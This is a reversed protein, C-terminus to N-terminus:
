VAVNPVQIKPVGAARRQTGRSAVAFCAPRLANPTSKFAACEAEALQTDREELLAALSHPVFPMVLVLNAGHTHVGLLPVVHPHQLRKLVEVEQMTAKQEHRPMNAMSVEKRIFQKGTAHHRVLWVTGFTGRGVIRIKEYNHKALQPHKAHLM